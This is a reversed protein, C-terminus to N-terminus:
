AATRYLQAARPRARRRRWPAPTLKEHACAAREEELAVPQSRAAYSARSAAQPLRGGCRGADSERSSGARLSAGFSM